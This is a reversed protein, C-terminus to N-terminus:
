KPWAHGFYNHKKAVESNQGGMFKPWEYKLKPWAHKLKPWAEVKPGDKVQKSKAVSCKYDLAARRIGTYVQSFNLRPWFACLNEGCTALIIALILAHGFIITIKAVRPWFTNMTALIVFKAHGLNQASGNQGGHGFHM